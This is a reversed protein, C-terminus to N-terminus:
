VAPGRASQVGHSACTQSAMEKGDASASRCRECTRVIDGAATRPSPPQPSAACPRVSWAAHCGRGRSRGRRRRPQPRPEHQRGLVPRCRNGLRGLPRPWDSAIGVGRHRATSCATPACWRYLLLRATPVGSAIFTPPRRHPAESASTTWGAKSLSIFVPGDVPPRRRRRDAGGVPGLFWQDILPDAMSVSHLAPVPPTGSGLNIPVAGREKNEEPPIPYVFRCM